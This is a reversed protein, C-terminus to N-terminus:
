RAAGRKAHRLKDYIRKLPSAEWAGERGDDNMEMGVEALASLLEALETNTFDVTIPREM